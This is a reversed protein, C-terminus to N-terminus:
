RRKKSGKSARKMAEVRAKQQAIAIQKRQEKISEYEEQKKRVLEIQKKQTDKMQKLLRYNRVRKVIDITVCFLLFVLVLITFHVNWYKSILYLVIGNILIFFVFIIFLGLKDPNKKNM